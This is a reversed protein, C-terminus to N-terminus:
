CCGRHHLHAIEHYPRKFQRQQIDRRSFGVSFPGEEFVTSVSGPPDTEAPYRMAESWVVGAPRCIRVTTEDNM